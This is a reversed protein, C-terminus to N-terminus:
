TGPSTTRCLAGARRAKTMALNEQQRNVPPRVTRVDGELELWMPDPRADACFVLGINAFTKKVEVVAERSPPEFGLVIVV